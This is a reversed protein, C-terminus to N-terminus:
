WNENWLGRRDKTWQEFKWWCDLDKRTKGCFYFAGRRAKGTTKLRGLSGVPFPRLRSCKRQTKQTKKHKRHKGHKRQESRKRNWFPWTLGVHSEFTFYFEPLDNQDFCSKEKFNWLKDFVLVIFCLQFVPLYLTGGLSDLRHLAFRCFPRIRSFSEPFRGNAARGRFREFKTRILECLYFNQFSAAFLSSFRLFFLTFFWHSPLNPSLQDVHTRGQKGAQRGAERAAEGAPAEASSVNGRQSPTDDM